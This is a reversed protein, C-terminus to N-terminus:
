EITKLMVIADEYGVEKPYYGVRRSQEIFGHNIYLMLANINSARVELWIQTAGQVKAQEIFQQLLQKGLGKGQMNPAICIDMLTADGLIYEGVYFGVTELEQKAVEGFYRGGICSAFTKQSWPHSHCAQEIPMLEDLMEVTLTSFTISM